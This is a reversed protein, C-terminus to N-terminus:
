SAAEYTGNIIIRSGAPWSITAAGLVDTGSTQSPNVMRTRLVRNADVAAEIKGIGVMEVSTGAKVVLAQVLQTKAASAAPVPLTIMYNGSGPNFASTTEIYVNFHVTRGIKRYRGVRNATLLGSPNTNTASLVPLYTQWPVDNVHVLEGEVVMRLDPDTGGAGRVHLERTNIEINGRGANRAQHSALELRGHDSYLSAHGSWSLEFDEAQLWARGNSWLELSPAFDSAGAAPGSLRLAANVTREELALYPDQVLQSSNFKVIANGLRSADPEISVGDNKTGSIIKGTLEVLGGSASFIAAGTSDFYRFGAGDMQARQGSAATRVTGSVTMTASMVGTTIQNASLEIFEGVVGAIENANLLDTSIEGSVIRDANLQIVTAIQAALELVNLRATDITGATIRDANLQLITALAAALNTTDIQGSTIKGATIRDANLQIVTAIQVALKQIVASQVTATGATLNGVDMSRVIQDGFHATLWATGSWYWEAYVEGTSANRNRHVDNVARGSGFAVTPAPGPKNAALVNTYTTKNKGNASTMAADATQQAAAAETIDVALMDDFDIITGAGAQSTVWPSFRAKVATAILTEKWTIKTWVDEPLETSNMVTRGPSSVGGATTTAQVVFGINGGGPGRRRVWAQMLFIRGGDTPFWREDRPYKNGAPSVNTFRMVKSGGHADPVDVVTASADNGIEWGENGLEFDGNSFFNTGRLASLLAREYAADAREQAEGAATQAVEIQESVDFAGGPFAADLMGQATTIEGDLATIAAPIQNLTTEADILRGDLGELDLELQVMAAEADGLDIALQALDTELEDVFAQDVLSTVTALVAPSPPGWEQSQSRIRLRIWVQGIPAPVVQEGGMRGIESALTEPSPLFGQSQGVHIECAEFNSYLPLEADVEGFPGILNGDWGVAVSLAGGAVVADTPQLPIPGEVAVFVHGGDPQVGFTAKIRGDDGFSRLPANDLSAFALGPATQLKRVARRLDVLEAAINIPM